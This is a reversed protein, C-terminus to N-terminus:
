FPVIALVDPVKELWDKINEIRSSIVTGTILLLAFKLSILIYSPTRKVLLKVYEVLFLFWLNMSGFGPISVEKIETETLSSAVEVADTFYVKCSLTNSTFM